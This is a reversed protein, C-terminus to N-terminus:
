LKRRGRHLLEQSYSELLQEVAQRLDHHLLKRIEQFDKEQHLTTLYEEHTYPIDINGFGQEILEGLQRYYEQLTM